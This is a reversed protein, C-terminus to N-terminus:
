LGVMLDELKEDFVELFYILLDKREINDDSKFETIIEKIKSKAQEISEKTDEDIDLFEKLDAEFNDAQDTIDITDSQIIELTINEPFNNKFFNLINKKM